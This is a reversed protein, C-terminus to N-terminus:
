KKKSAKYNTSQTQNMEALVGKADNAFQGTPDLELYKQYAEQCGPPAVIKGTKPDLTAKSVLAQGKLYYPIPRKPDAAIAKDAAAVTADTQGSRAMVITENQYYMGANAPNVKAATDYATQSDPIKGESALAEGLADEAAGDLDPNPKKGAQDLALGKQLSTEADTWQKMGRQALGLEVWIVAADPKLAADRKMLDAAEQFNKDKDDQRAKALDANLNKIQANEKLISANKEKTEELAKRQEPTLKDVYDKRSMDDNAETDSGAAVKVEDIQDVVQNKPTEPKRYVMTYSGPAVEGKFDGNADVDFTYKPDATPSAMGGPYLAVTGTTLPSGAPDNVHGHIKATTQGALPLAAAILAALALRPWIKKEMNM